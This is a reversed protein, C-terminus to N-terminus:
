GKKMGLYRAIMNPLYEIAAKINRDQVIRKLIYIALDIGSSNTGSDNM